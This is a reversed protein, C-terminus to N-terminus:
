KINYITINEANLKGPTTFLNMVNMIETPFFLTTMVIEGDNIFLEASAKDV